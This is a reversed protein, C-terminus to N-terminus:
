QKKNVLPCKRATHGITKCNWCMVKGIREKDKTVKINKEESTMEHFKKMPPAKFYLIDEVLQKHNIISSRSENVPWRSALDKAAQFTIPASQTVSYEKLSKYEDKLGNIFIIALREDPFTIDLERCEMMSINMRDMYKILHEDPEQKINTLKNSLVIEEMVKAGGNPVYLNIIIQWIRRFNNCLFADNYDEHSCLRIRAEGLTSRVLFSCLSISERHFKKFVENNITWQEMKLKYIERAEKNTMDKPLKPKTKPVKPIKIDEIDKAKDSVQISSVKNIFDLQDPFREAIELIIDAKYQAYNTKDKLVARSGIEIEMNDRKMSNM